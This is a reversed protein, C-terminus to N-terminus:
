LPFEIVLDCGSRIDPPPGMVRIEWGNEKLVNEAKIVESINEFVLIGRDQNDVKAKAKFRNKLGKLM